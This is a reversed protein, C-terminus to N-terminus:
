IEASTDCCNRRTGDRGAATLLIAYNRIWPRFCLPPPIQICNKTHLTSAFGTEPDHQSLHISNGCSDHQLSMIPHYPHFYSPRDILPILCLFQKVRIYRTMLCRWAMLWSINEECSDLKRKDAARIISRDDWKTNPKRLLTQLSLLTLLGSTGAWMFFIFLYFTKIRKRHCVSQRPRRAKKKKKSSWRCFEMFQGLNSQLVPLCLLTVGPPQVWMLKQEDQWSLANGDCLLCKGQPPCAHNKAKHNSRSM